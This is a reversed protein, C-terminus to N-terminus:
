PRGFPDGEPEGSEARDDGEHDANVTIARRTRRWPPHSETRKREKGDATDRAVVQVRETVQRDVSREDRIEDDQRPVRKQASCEDDDDSGARSRRTVAEADDIVADDRRQRYEGAREHVHDLGHQRAAARRHVHLQDDDAVRAQVKEQEDHRQLDREARAALPTRRVAEEDRPQQRQEDAVRKVREGLDVDEAKGDVDEIQRVHQCKGPCRRAHEVGRHAREGFGGALGSGTPRGPADSQHADGEENGRKQQQLLPAVRDALPQRQEHDDDAERGGRDQLDELRNPRGFARLRAEDM